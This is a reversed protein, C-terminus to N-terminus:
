RQVEASEAGRRRDCDIKRFPPTAHRTEGCRTCRYSSKDPSRGPQYKLRHDNVEINTTTVREAISISEANM